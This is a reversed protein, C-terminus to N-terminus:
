VRAIRSSRCNSPAPPPRVRNTNKLEIDNRSRREVFKSPPVKKVRRRGFGRVHVQGNALYKCAQHSNTLRPGSPPCEDLMGTDRVLCSWIYDNIENRFDACVPVGELTLFSHVSGVQQPSSAAKLNDELFEMGTAPDVEDLALDLREMFRKEKNVFSIPQCVWDTMRHSDIAEEYSVRQGDMNVLCLWGTKSHTCSVIRKEINRLNHADRKTM